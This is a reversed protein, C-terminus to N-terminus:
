FLPVLQPLLGLGRLHEVLEATPIVLLFLLADRLTRRLADPQFSNDEADDYLRPRPWFLPVRQAYREYRAGFRSRLLAAEGRSTVYLVAGVFGGILVALMISGFLLGIGAGGITSFLYLPNRTISYPGETILEVNKKGGIYLISWLRGLVATMIFATGVLKIGDSTFSNAPWVPDSLLILAAVGVSFSQLAYLRRRQDYNVPHGPEEKNM